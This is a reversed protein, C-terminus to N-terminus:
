PSHPNLDGRPCEHLGWVLAAVDVDATMIKALPDYTLRLDGNRYLTQREEDTAIALLAAMDPVRAILRRLESENVRPEVRLAALRHQALVRKAEAERIWQLIVPIDGGSEAELALRYRALVRECDAAEAMLRDREVHDAGRKAARLLDDVTADLASAALAENMWADLGTLIKDQRLYVSRPHASASSAAPERSRCRYHAQGNNRSGEM